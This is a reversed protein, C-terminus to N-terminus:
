GFDLAQEFKGKLFEGLSDQFFTWWPTFGFDKHCFNTLFLILGENKFM